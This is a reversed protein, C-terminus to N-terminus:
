EDAADSTYLLCPYECRESIRKCVRVDVYGYNTCLAWRMHFGIYFLDFIIQRYGRIYYILQVPSKLFEVGVPFLARLGYVHLFLM